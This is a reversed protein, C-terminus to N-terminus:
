KNSEEFDVVWVWPNTIVTLPRHGWATRGEFEKAATEDFPYVIFGTTTLKGNVKEQIPKPKGNISQWLSRFSDKANLETYGSPGYNKYKQGPYVGEGSDFSEVPEIGEAVCDAETIDAIRQVRINKVTYTFRSAARPMHISPKWPTQKMAEPVDAFDAMYAYGPEREDQVATFAWNERVWLKDGVSGYRCKGFKWQECAAGFGATAIFGSVGQHVTARRQNNGPYIWKPQQKIVRRTQTKRNAQLAQVMPTSFLIPSEKM